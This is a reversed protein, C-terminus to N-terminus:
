MGITRTLALVSLFQVKLLMFAGSLAINTIKNLKM